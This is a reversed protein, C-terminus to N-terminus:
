QEKPLAAGAYFYHVKDTGKKLALGFSLIEDTSYLFWGDWEAFYRVKKVVPVYREDDKFLDDKRISDWADNLTEPTNPLVAAPLLDKFSVQRVIRNLSNAFEADNKDIKLQVTAAAPATKEEASAAACHFMFGIALLLPVFKNTRNGRMGYLFSAAVFLRNRM